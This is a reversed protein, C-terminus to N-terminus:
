KPLLPQKEASKANRDTIFIILVGIIFMILVAILAICAVINVVLELDM